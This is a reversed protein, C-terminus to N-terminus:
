VIQQHHLYPFPPCPSYHTPMCRNYVFDHLLLLNQPSPPPSEPVLSRKPQPPLMREAIAVSGAVGESAYNCAHGGGISAQLFSGRRRQHLMSQVMLAMSRGAVLNNITHMITALQRLGSSKAGEEEEDEEDEDKRVTGNVFGLQRCRV